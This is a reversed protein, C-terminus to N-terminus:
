FLLIKLIKSNKFGFLYNFNISLTLKFDSFYLTSKVKILFLVSSKSTTSNCM